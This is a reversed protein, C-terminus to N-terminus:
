AYNKEGISEPTERKKPVVNTRGSLRLMTSLHAPAVHGFLGFVRLTLRCAPAASSM